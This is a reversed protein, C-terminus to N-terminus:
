KHGRLFLKSSNLVSQPTLDPKNQSHQVAHPKLGFVAFPLIANGAEDNCFQFVTCFAEM